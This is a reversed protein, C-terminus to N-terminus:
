MAPVPLTFVGTGVQSMPPPNAGPGALFCDQRIEDANAIFWFTIGYRGENSDMYFPETKFISRVAVLQNADGDFPKFRCYHLIDAALPNVIDPPPYSPYDTAERPRYGEPFVIGFKQAPGQPAQRPFRDSDEESFLAHYTWIAMSPQSTLFEKGIFSLTTVAPYPM